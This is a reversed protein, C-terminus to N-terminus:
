LSTSCRPSRGAFPAIVAAPALRPADPRGDRLDRRRSNKPPSCLNRDFHDDPSRPSDLCRVSRGFEAGALLERCALSTPGHRFLEDALPRLALGLFDAHQNPCGRLMGCPDCSFAGRDLLDSCPLGSFGYDCRVNELLDILGSATRTRSEGGMKAPVAGLMNNSTEARM